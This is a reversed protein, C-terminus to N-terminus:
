KKILAYTGLKIKSRKKHGLNTCVLKEEKSQGMAKRRYLIRHIDVVLNHVESFLTSCLLNVTGAGFSAFKPSTFECNKTTAFKRNRDINQRLDMM